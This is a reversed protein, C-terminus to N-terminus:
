ALSDISVPEARAVGRKAMEAFYATKVDDRALLKARYGKDAAIKAAYHAADGARKEAAIMGHLVLGLVDNDYKPGRAIGTGGERWTGQTVSELWDAIETAADDATGPDDKNNLVSNAVNGVKTHFGFVAFMTSPQGAEGFQLDFSKGIEALTYRAGTAQEMRDVEAGQSDIFARDSVKQRAM